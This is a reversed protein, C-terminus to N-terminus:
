RRARPAELGQRALWRHQWSAAWLQLLLVASGVAVPIWWPPLQWIVASQGGEQAAMVVAWRTAALLGWALGAAWVVPHSLGGSKIIAASM